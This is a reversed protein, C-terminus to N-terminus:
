NYIINNFVFDISKYKVFLKFLNEKHIIKTWHVNKIQFIKIM